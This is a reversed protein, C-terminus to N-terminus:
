KVKSMLLPAINGSQMQEDAWIRILRSKPIGTEASLRSLSRLTGEDLTFTARRMTDDSPGCFLPVVRHDRGGHAYVIAEDIFADATLPQHKTSPASRRLSLLSM